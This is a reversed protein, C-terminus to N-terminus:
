SLIRSEALEICKESLTQKMYVIPKQYIKLANIGQSIRAYIHAAARRSIPKLVFLPPVAAAVVQRRRFCCDYSLFTSSFFGM